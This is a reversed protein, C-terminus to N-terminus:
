KKRKRGKKRAGEGARGRNKSPSQVKLNSPANTGGKSLPKIHAVDKGKLMAKAKAAGHKKTLSALKARRAKNQESRKKSNKRAFKADYSDGTYKRGTSKNYKRKTPM